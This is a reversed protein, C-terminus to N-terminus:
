LEVFEENIEINKLQMNNSWYSFKFGHKEIKPFPEYSEEGSCIVKLEQPLKKLLEILEKVTM